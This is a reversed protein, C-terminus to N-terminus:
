KLFNRTRSFSTSFNEGSIKLPNNKMCLKGSWCAQVTYAVAVIANTLGTGSLNFAVIDFTGPPLLAGIPLTQGQSFFAGQMM